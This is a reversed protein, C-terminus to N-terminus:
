LSKYVHYYVKLSLIQIKHSIANHWQTLPSRRKSFLCHRWRELTLLVLWRVTFTSSEKSVDSIAWEVICRLIGPFQPITISIVTPYHTSISCNHGPSQCCFISATRVIIQDKGSGEKDTIGCLTVWRKVRSVATFYPDILMLLNMFNWNCGKMNDGYYERHLRFYETM